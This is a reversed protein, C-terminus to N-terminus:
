RNKKRRSEIVRNIFHNIETIMPTFWPEFFCFSHPSNEFTKVQSYIGCSDMIRIYDTRGAHMREVSSNIFLVPPCHKGAHTLPAAEKWIDPREKKSFGFWYTAASTKLSDNGEGSEPHIFALTGDIDIVAKVLSSAEPYCGNGEFLQNGNTSGTFAALEGGASHGAAIIRDPHIGYNKAHTRTWRIASKIDYVAAPYLAETSLRYEPSICVYGDAALKELMAAHMGKDGSRWGGGHIFLIATRKEYKDGPPLYMDLKLEREPTTCYPIDKLVTVGPYMGAPVLEIDPFHKRHKELEKRLNYTTDRIGTIGDLRQSRAAVTLLLLVLIIFKPKM